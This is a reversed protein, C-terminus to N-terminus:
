QSRALFCVKAMLDQTGSDAETNEFVRAVFLHARPFLKYIIEVGISGHGTKDAMTDNGTVFDKWGSIHQAYIHNAPLGTDLLAIRVHDYLPEKSKALLTLHLADVRRLWQDALDDGSNAIFIRRELQKQHNELAAIQVRQQVVVERINAMGQELLQIKQDRGDGM